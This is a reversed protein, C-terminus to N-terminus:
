RQTQIQRIPGFEVCSCCRPCDSAETFGTVHVAGGAAYLEAEASRDVGIERVTHLYYPHPRSPASKPRISTGATARLPSSPRPTPTQRYTQALRPPASSPRGVRISRTRATSAGGPTAGDEISAAVLRGAKVPTSPREASYPRDAAVSPPPAMAAALGSCSLLDTTLTSTSAYSNGLISAGPLFEASIRLATIGPNDLSQSTM